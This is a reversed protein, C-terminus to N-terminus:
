GPTFVPLTIASLSRLVKLFEQSYVFFFKIEFSLYRLFTFSKDNDNIVVYFGLKYKIVKKHREEEIQNKNLGIM